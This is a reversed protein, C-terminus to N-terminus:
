LLARLAIMLSLFPAIPSAIRSYINIYLAHPFDQSIMDIKYYIVNICMYGSMVSMSVITEAAKTYLCGPEYAKIQQDHRPTIVTMRTNCNRTISSMMEGKLGSLAAFRSSHM